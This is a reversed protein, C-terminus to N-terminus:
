PRERDARPSLAASDPQFLGMKIQRRYREERVRDWGIRYADRYKRIDEPFAQIPWHPSTFAVFLLFPAESRRFVELDEIAHDAIADTLYFRPPVSRVATTGEVLSFPDFYNAVGWIIGFYRDFGRNLPYSPLDAFIPRIIQNSLNKLQDPGEITRSVHWKGSMATQYGAPRLVEAITPTHSSLEGRYGPLHDDFTMRGVGAQQPYLGTLLAARSPCCRATNHFGTFRLGEAALRDLNPTHIEGGFSGVDSFGLDDALLILINPRLPPAACAHAWGAVTAALFAGAQFWPGRRAARM